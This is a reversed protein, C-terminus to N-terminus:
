KKEKKEDQAPSVEDTPVKTEEAESGATTASSGRAISQMWAPWSEVEVRAEDFQEKLWGSRKM